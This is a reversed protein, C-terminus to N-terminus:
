STLFIGAICSILNQDRIRSFDISNEENTGGVGEQIYGCTRERYRHRWEKEAFLNILVMKRSEINKM